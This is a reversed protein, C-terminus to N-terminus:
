GHIEGTNDWDMEEQMRAVSILCDEYADEPAGHEIATSKWFELEDFLEDNKHILKDINM